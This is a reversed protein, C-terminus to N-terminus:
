QGAKQKIWEVTVGFLVEMAGEETFTHSANDIVVHRTDASINNAYDKGFRLMADGSKRANIILTDVTFNQAMATSGPAYNDFVKRSLVYGPGHASVYSDLEAIYIFDKELREKAQREDYGDTHSADWLVAADFAQAQSYVIAMGSYSHGIVCLWAAGQDKAYAVIADIDAANVKVDFSGIDRQKEDDGYFSVRLTSIGQQEFYRSANFLLLDHMWGGLGPVLIALPSDCAGRLIGRVELDGEAIPIRIKKEKPEHVYGHTEM